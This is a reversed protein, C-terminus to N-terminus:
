VPFFSNFLGFHSIMPNDWSRLINLRVRNTTCPDFRKINKYGITKHHVLEKWSNGVWADFSWEAVRQGERIYEQVLVNDFTRIQGLDLLITVNSNNIDWEGDATWYTPAVQKSAEDFVVLNGSIIDIIGNEM